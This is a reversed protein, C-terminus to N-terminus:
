VLSLQRDKVPPQPVALRRSDGPSKETNQDINIINSDPHDSCTRQNRHRRTVKSFGKLTTGFAGIVIPMMILNM